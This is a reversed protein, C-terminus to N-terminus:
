TMLIEKSKGNILAKAEATLNQRSLQLLKKNIQIYEDFETKFEEYLRKEEDSSILPEFIKQNEKLLNLQKEMESEYYDMDETTTSLIHQLEQIRLDSTNTNMDSTAKVSPMWILQMETSTGDVDSLKSISFIGLLVTLGVVLLFSLTLKKSIKLDYFWKM